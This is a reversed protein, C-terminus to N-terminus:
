QKKILEKFELITNERVSNTLWTILTEPVDAHEILVKKIADIQMQNQKYDESKKLKKILNEYDNEKAM